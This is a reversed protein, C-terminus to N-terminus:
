SWVIGGFTVKWFAFATMGRGSENASWDTKVALLIFDLGRLHFIVGKSDPKQKEKAERSRM